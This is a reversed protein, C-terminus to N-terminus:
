KFHDFDREASFLGCVDSGNGDVTTRASVRVDAAEAEVFGKDGAGL